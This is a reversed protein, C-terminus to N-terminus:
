HGDNWPELSKPFRDVAITEKWHKEYESMARRLRQLQQGVFRQKAEQWETEGAMDNELVNDMWSFVRRDACEVFLQWSAHAEEPTKAKAFARLWHRAFAERQALTWAISRCDFGTEGEPWGEDGAIDPVTLLPAIFAARRQHLPCPSAADRAAMSELWELRDFLRAAVILDILQQDNWTEGIEYIEEMAAEVEACPAGAFLAHLLRDMDGQVAFTVNNLCLRLARWLAVGKEPRCSLLAECLSVYFCNASQVRRVFGPSMEMMGELWPDIAEPCHKFVLDFHEPRVHELYFHDGLRRAEMIEEFYRSAMEHRREEHEDPDNVREFFRRMREQEDGQERIDGHSFLYNVSKDAATRDHTVYLPTQPETNGPNLVMCNLLEIALAVEAQDCRRDAIVELLIPPALRHAIESFAASRNAAAIAYSGMRNEISSKDASWSWGKEDLIRGLRGPAKLGLLYWVCALELDEPGDCLLAAFADFAREGLVLKKECVLQAVRVLKDPTSAYERVLEDMDESAPNACAKALPTFFTDLDADVIRRVQDLPAEIQIEAILLNCQTSLELNEPLASERVRLAYLASTEQAGAVLVLDLAAISAGFRPDASRGAFDRLRSREIRALEQPAARALALSYDRWELDERSRNRGSVMKGFDVNAAEGILEQVFEEPIEFSPDVLFRKVRDIRSRLPIDRRSLTEAAHRRELRIYSKGPDPVYNEKYSFPNDLGPDLQRSEAADREYGTRRLLIAAVSRNLDSHIGPEPERTAFAESRLRLEAATAEPDVTNLVNIWWQESVVEGSIAVHLAGAELFDVAELLPRGQLLHAAVVALGKDTQDVIEVHRGLVTLCGTDTKGIRSRLRKQRHAYPSEEEDDKPTGRRKLSILRLWKSGRAAIMRAVLPNSKDVRRLADIAIQRGSSSARRDSREIADLLPEILESALTELEAVHNEPLNQSQVWSSCLAGLLVNPTPGERRALAISIAARIIEAKEDYQDIPQLFQELEEIADEANKGGLRRVLALGLAHRVFSPEFDLEGFESTKTFVSDIVQSVRVYVLDPTTAASSSMEEVEKSTIKRAGRSFERALDLIFQRWGMRGYASTTFSSKGYEWLLRHITVGEVGGLQDKLQIVLDFLRPVKALHVLGEPIEERTLGEAALKQDFEGGSVTDYCVVEVRAPTSISDSLNGLRDSVFSQRASALVHTRRYFPDDQLSNLLSLWDHSPQQNLGDIYLLLVPGDKNPRHLLRRVRGGWYAEDREVGHDLDRLHRAILAVIDSRGRIPGVISSSPVVIVIPLEELRSHLWGVSVWTKGMGELGLVIAPGDAEPNGFWNDLQSIPGARDVYTRGELGGAVDQNFLSRAKRSDTWIEHVRRHSTNRLLEYGISPAFFDKEISELVSAHDASSAIAQMLEEHGGGIRARFSDPDSACLAALRPLRAPSWDLVVPEIGHRLSSKEMATVTQEPVVQTTVLIWAELDRNQEVAQDIQGRIERTNLNSSEGYRRAEYRLNRQGRIGGDGGRQSGSRAVRFDFGILHGLLDAALHELATSDASILIEKLKEVSTEVTAM